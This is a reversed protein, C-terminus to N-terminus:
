HFRYTLRRRAGLPVFPTWSFSIYGQTGNGGTAKSGSVLNINITASGGAGYNGGALGNL